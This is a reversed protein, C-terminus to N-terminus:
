KVSFFLTNKLPFFFDDRVGSDGSLRRPPMDNSETSMISFSGPTNIDIKDDIDELYGALDEEDFTSFGDFNRVSIHRSPKKGSTFNQNKNDSEDVSGGGGGGGTAATTDIVTCRSDDKSGTNLSSEFYKRQFIARKEELLSLKKRYELTPTVVSAESESRVSLKTKKRSTEIESSEESWKSITYPLTSVSQGTKQSIASSVSSASSSSSLLSDRQKKM